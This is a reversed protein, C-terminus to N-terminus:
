GRLRDAAILKSQILVPALEGRTAALLDEIRSGERYVSVGKCGLRWADAYATEVDSPTASAPLNVTKSIGNDIWRQWTAAMAVHASAPVDHAYRFVRAVDAPLGLNDVPVAAILQTAAAEDLGRHSAVAALLDADVSVVGDAHLVNKRYVPAFRPEIGSSCGAVMSITGTPAISTVACHRAPRTADSLSFNPFVGRETALAETAAAAARAIEEGLRDAIALAETSDYPVGLAILLDAFGMVGLGIRRNARAMATIRPDPYICADIVNDLLRVALAVVDALEDWRIGGGPEVLAALNISGLNSAEFEFLTQEGCPNTTRIPGLSRRLTNARNIVDIFLLGPDGTRWANETLARWIESGAVRGVAAGSRPSILTIPEDNLLAEMMEDSVAVSTNFNPLSGPSSKADIFEFIDPHTPVLSALNAGRMKGGQMVTTTEADILRIWAVPGAASGAESTSIEAGRERIASFDFGTGGGGRHCRAATVVTDLMADFDDRAPLVFCSALQPQRGGAGHLVRGSPWFVNDLMLREFQGAVARTETATAGYACEAEALTTAVRHVLAEASEIRGDALRRCLKLQLVDINM